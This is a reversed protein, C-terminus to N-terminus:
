YWRRARLYWWTILATLVIVGLAFAQGYPWAYESMQFNMGFYGTVVTLPMFITAIVTLRKMVENMRNSVVSVHLELLGAIEDRFSDLLDSVRALRDYVDRLYPRLEAPIARFEDRTLALITDRQPGVIRRMAAIGRKLHIIREYMERGDSEFVEEELADVHEAIHDMIPLYHDVLVDLLFHLLHAPSKALLEPRQRLIAGAATVSRTDGDHYTALVNRSVLVDIERTSPRQDGRDWRASHVVLYLYDGYDDVKPRNLQSVMDDLVLPHVGLPALLERAVEEGEGDLDFWANGAGGAVAACAADSTTERAGAADALWTTIM